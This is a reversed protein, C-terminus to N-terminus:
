GGQGRGIARLVSKKFDEWALRFQQQAYPLSRRVMKADESRGQQELIEAVRKWDGGSEAVFLKFDQKEQTTGWMARDEM